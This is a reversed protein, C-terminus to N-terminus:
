SRQRLAYALVRARHRRYFMEVAAPDNQLRALLGADTDETVDVILRFQSL